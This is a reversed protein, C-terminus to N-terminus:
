REWLSDPAELRDKATPVAAALGAVLGDVQVLEYEDV